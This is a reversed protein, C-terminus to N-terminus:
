VVSGTFLCEGGPANFMIMYNITLPVGDNGAWEIKGSLPFTGAAALNVTGNNATNVNAARLVTSNADVEFLHYSSGAGNFRLNLTSATSSVCNAELSLGHGSYLQKVGSGFNTKFYLKSVEAVGAGNTGNAGAAGTAGAPGAPGRLGQAGRPGPHSRVYSAIMRQIQRKSMASATATPGKLKAPDGAGLATSGGIALALAGAVASAYTLRGLTKPRHMHTFM